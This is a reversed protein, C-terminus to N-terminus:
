LNDSFNHLVEKFDYLMIIANKNVKASLKIIGETKRNSLFYLSKSFQLSISSEIFIPNYMIRINVIIKHAMPKKTSVM